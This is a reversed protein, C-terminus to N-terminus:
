LVGDFGASVLRAHRREDETLVADDDVDPVQLVIPRGWADIVAPDLHDGYALGFGATQAGATLEYRGSAALVYPGRWGTRTAPSYAPVGDPKRLLDAVHQPPALVDKRYVEFAERLTVLSKKTAADFGEEGARQAAVMATGALAALIVLVVLLEVL